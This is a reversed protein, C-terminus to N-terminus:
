LADGEREKGEVAVGLGECAADSEVLVVRAAAVPEQRGDDRADGAHVELVVQARSHEIRAAQVVKEDAHRLLELRLEVERIDHRRVRLVAAGVLNHVDHCRLRSRRLFGAVAATM